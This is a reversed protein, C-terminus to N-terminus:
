SCPTTSPVGRNSDLYLTGGLTSSASLCFRSASASVVRLTDPQSAVFGNAKLVALSPTYTGNTALVTAEATAASSLDSKLLVAGAKQISTTATQEAQKAGSNTIVVSVAIIAGVLVVLAGGVVMRTREFSTRKRSVPVQARTPPESFTRQNPLASVAWPEGQPPAAPGAFYGGPDTSM